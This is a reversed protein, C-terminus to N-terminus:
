IIRKSKLRLSERSISILLGITILTFITNSGGYSIFPLSLGTNPAYGIVYATNILFYFIINIIIGLSLFLSFRDPSIKVTQIGLHFIMLFLFFVWGIGLFGYEEGIIALVYDTHAAPLYGDKLKSNGLKKGTLGGSGLAMLAKRQQNDIEQNSDQYFSQIWTDLREHM